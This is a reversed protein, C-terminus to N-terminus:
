WERSGDRGYKRGGPDAYRRTSALIGLRTKPLLILAVSARRSEESTGCTVTLANHDALMLGPPHAVRRRGWIAPCLATGSQNDPLAVGFVGSGGVSVREYM